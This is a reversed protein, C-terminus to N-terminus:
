NVQLDNGVLQGGFEGRESDCVDIIQARYTSSTACGSNQVGFFECTHLSDEEDFEVLGVMAFLQEDVRAETAM